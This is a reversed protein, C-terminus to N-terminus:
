ISMGTHILRMNIEGSGHQGPRQAVHYACDRGVGDCRGGSGCDRLCLLDHDVHVCGHGACRGVRNPLLKGVLDAGEHLGSHTGHTRYEFSQPAADTEGRVEGTTDTVFNGDQNCELPSVPPCKLKVEEPPKTPTYRVSGRDGIDQPRGTRLVPNGQDHRAGAVRLRRRYSSNRYWASEPDNSTSAM